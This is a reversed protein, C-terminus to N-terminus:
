SRCPPGGREVLAELPPDAPDPADDPPGPLTSAAGDVLDQLVPLLRGLEDALDDLAPGAATAAAAGGAAAIPELGEAAAAVAPAMLMRTSGLLSHALYELELSDGRNFANQLQEVVSKNNKLFVRAVDIM